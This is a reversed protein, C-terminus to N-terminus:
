RLADMSTTDIAADALGTEQRYLAIVSAASVDAGVHWADPSLSDIAVREGAVVARFWFREVDLALHQLLGICNWGSPLVPRRLADEDLGDLIGLIHKRQGELCAM